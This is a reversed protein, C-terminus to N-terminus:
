TPTLHFEVVAASGPITTLNFAAEAPVVSSDPSNVDVEAVVNIVFAM